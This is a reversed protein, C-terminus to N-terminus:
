LFTMSAVLIQIADRKSSVLASGSENVQSPSNSLVSCAVIVTLILFHPKRINSYFSETDSVCM